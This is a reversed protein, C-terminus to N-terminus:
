MERLFMFTVRRGCTLEACMCVHAVALIKDSIKCHMKYNEASSPVDHVRGNGHRTEEAAAAAEAVVVNTHMMHASDVAAIVILGCCPLLVAFIHTHIRAHMYASSILANDSLLVRRRDTHLASFMMRSFISDFQVSNGDLCSVFLFHMPWYVLYLYLFINLNHMLRKKM